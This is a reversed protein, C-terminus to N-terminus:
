IEIKHKVTISIKLAFNNLRLYDYLLLASNKDINPLLLKGAACIALHSYGNGM